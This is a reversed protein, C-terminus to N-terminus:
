RFASTLAVLVFAVLAANISILYHYYLPGTRGTEKRTIEKYQKVYRLIMIRLFLFSQNMGRDSLAKYILICTVVYWAVCLLGLTILLATINVAFGRSPM